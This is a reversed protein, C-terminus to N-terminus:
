GVLHTAWWLILALVAVILVGTVFIVVFPWQRTSRSPRPDM